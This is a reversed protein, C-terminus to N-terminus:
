KDFLRTVQKVNNFSIEGLKLHQRLNSRPTLTTKLQREPQILPKLVEGRKILRPHKSTKESSGKDCTSTSSGETMIDAIMESTQEYSIEIEKSEIKERIFHIRVNIHKSCKNSIPNRAIAIAGRTDQLLITAGKQPIRFDETLKKLFIAEQGGACAAMYEAETSSLVVTPQRKSAWSIAAGALTFICGTTSRRADLDGAWDTDAYGM